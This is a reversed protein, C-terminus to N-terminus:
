APSRLNDRFYVNPDHPSEEPYFVGTTSEEISPTDRTPSAARSFAQPTQWGSPAEQSIESHVVVTGAESVTDNVVSEDQLIRRRIRRSARIYQCCTGILRGGQCCACVVALAVIIFIAILIQLIFINLIDPKNYEVVPHRTSPVPTKTTVAQLSDFFRM